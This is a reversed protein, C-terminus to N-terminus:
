QNLLLDLEPTVICKAANCVYKVPPQHRNCWDKFFYGSLLGVGFEDPVPYVLDVCLILFSYYFWEATRCTERYKHLQGSYHFFIWDLTEIPWIICLSCAYHSIRPFVFKLAESGIIVETLIRNLPKLYSLICIPM